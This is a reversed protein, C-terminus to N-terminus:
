GPRASSGSCGRPNIARPLLGPLPLFPSRVAPLSPLLSPSLPIRMGRSQFRRGYSGGLDSSRSTLSLELYVGCEKPTHIELSCCGSPRPLMMWLIVAAGQLSATGTHVSHINTAPDKGGRPQSSRPAAPATCSPLVLLSQSHGLCPLSASDMSLCPSAGARPHVPHQLPEPLPDQPQSARLMRSSANWLGGPEESGWCCLVWGLIWWCVGQAAAIHHPLLPHLQSGVSGLEGAM